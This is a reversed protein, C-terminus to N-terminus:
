RMKRMGAACPNKKGKYPTRILWLVIVNSVAANAPGTGAVGNLYTRGTPANLSDEMENKGRFIAVSVFMLMENTGAMFREAPDM